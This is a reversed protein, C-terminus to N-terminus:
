LHAHASTCGSPASCIETFYKPRVQGLLQELDIRTDNESGTINEPPRVLLGHLELVLILADVSSEETENMGTEAAM